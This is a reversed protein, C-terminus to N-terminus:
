GGFALTRLAQVMSRERSVRLCFLNFARSYNRAIPMINRLGQGFIARQIPIDFTGADPRKARHGDDRDPRPRRRDQFDVAFSRPVANPKSIRCPAMKSLV